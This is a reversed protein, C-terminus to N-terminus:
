CTTHGVVRVTQLIGHLANALAALTFPLADTPILCEVFDGLFQHLNALLVAMFGDHHPAKISTCRWRGAEFREHRVAPSVQESARERHCRDSQVVAREVGLEIRGTRCIRVDDDVWARHDAGVEDIHPPAIGDLVLHADRLVEDCRAICTGRDDVDAQHEVARGAEGVLEVAHMGTGVAM